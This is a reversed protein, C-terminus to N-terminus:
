SIIIRYREDKQIREVLYDGSQISSSIEKCTREFVQRREEKTLPCNITMQGLNQYIKETIEKISLTLQKNNLGTKKMLEKTREGIDEM